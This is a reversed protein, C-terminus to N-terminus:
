DAKIYDVTSEVDLDLMVPRKYAKNGELKSISYVLFCNAPIPYFKVSDSKTIPASSVMLAFSASIM